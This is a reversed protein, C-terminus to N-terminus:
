NTRRVELLGDDRQKEDLGSGDEIRRYRRLWPRGEIDYPCVLHPHGDRADGHELLDVVSSFPILGYSIVEEVAYRTRDLSQPLM